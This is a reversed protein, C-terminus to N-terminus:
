GNKRKQMRITKPNDPMEPIDITHEFLRDGSVYTAALLRMGADIVFQRWSDTKSFDMNKVKELTPEESSFAIGIDERKDGVPNIIHSGERGAIYNIATGVKLIEGNRTYALYEELWKRLSVLSGGHTACYLLDKRTIYVTPTVDMFDDTEPKRVAPFSRLLIKRGNGYRLELLNKASKAQKISRQFSATADKDMLLKRLETAVSRYASDDEQFVYEKIGKEIILISHSVSEALSDTARKDNKM